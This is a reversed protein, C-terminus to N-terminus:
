ARCGVVQDQEDVSMYNYIEKPFGAYELNRRQEGTLNNWELREGRGERAQKAAHQEVAEKTLEDFEDYYDLDEERGNVIFKVDNLAYGAIGTARKRWQGHVAVNQREWFKKFGSWIEGTGKKSGVLSKNAYFREIVDKVLPHDSHVLHAAVRGIYDIKQYFANDSKAKRPLTDRFEGNNIRYFLQQIADQYGTLNRIANKIKRFFKLIPGIIPTEERQIYRRFDEALLEEVLAPSDKKYHKKGAEYLTDLEEDSLLTQTVAHFAEHYLTGRAAAESLTIAGQQFRGWAWQQEGPIELLGQVLHLREDSNFMPLNKQLWKREKQINAKREKETTARRYLVFSSLGDPNRKIAANWEKLANILEQVSDVSFKRKTGNFTLELENGNMFDIKDKEPIANWAYQTDEDSLGLDKAIEEVEEKSMAQPAESQTDQQVAASQATEKPKSTAVASSDTATKMTQPKSQPKDNLGSAEEATGPNWNGFAGFFDDTDSPAPKNVPAAPTEAKVFKDEKVSWTRSEGNIDVQCRDKADKNIAQMRALEKEVEEDTLTKGTDPDTASWKKGTTININKGNVNHLFTQGEPYKTQQTAIPGEESLNRLTFWTNVTHRTGIPLNTHGIEGIVENYNRNLTGVTIRDNIHNLSVQVKTGTLRDLLMEKWSDGKPVEIKQKNNPEGLPSYKLVVRDKLDMDLYPSEIQLLACIASIAKNRDEKHENPNPYKEFQTLAENLLQYLRTDKMEEANFVPTAFPVAVSKGSADPVLIYCQGTKGAGIANVQKKQGVNIQTPLVKVALTFPAIANGEQYIENLTHREESNVVFGTKVEYVQGRLPKGNKFKLNLGDKADVIADTTGDKQHKTIMADSVKNYLNILADNRHPELKPYPLDGLVNGRDDTMFIVISDRQEIANLENFPKGFIEQAMIRARFIIPKTPKVRDEGVNEAHDFAKVEDSNLFDYIAKSRKYLLPDKSNKVRDTEHYPIMVNHWTNGVGPERGYRRTANRWSGGNTSPTKDQQERFEEMAKEADETSTTAPESPAATPTAPSVNDRGQNSPSKSTADHGTDGLDFSGSEGQQEEPITDKRDQDAQMATMGAAIVGLAQQKREETKAAIQIDDYGQGYLYAAEDESILSAADFNSLEDFSFDDPTEASQGLWQIMQKADAVETPSANNDIFGEMAKQRNDIEKADKVAQADVGDPTNGSSILDFFLDADETSIDGVDMGRKIEKASKGAFKNKAQEEKSANEIKKEEKEKDQNIKEPHAVYDELTAYYNIAQASLKEADALDNWLEILARNYEAPSKSNDQNKARFTEEIHDININRQEQADEMAQERSAASNGFAINAGGFINRIVFDTYAAPNMLTTDVEVYGEPTTDKRSFALDSSTNEESLQEPTKNTKLLFSQPLDERRKTIIDNARGISEKGLFHLYALNDEQDKSLNEGTRQKVYNISDLYSDLKKNVSEANHKIEERIEDDTATRNGDADVFPGKYKNEGVKETTSDVISQIDEASLDKGMEDYIARLDDLKGARLFAQIDRVTQKDDEDKWAKKDNNIAHEEKKQESYTHAVLNRARDFFGEEALVKNVDEINEQYQNYQKNFEKLENIAGGSYEGYRQPNWRSKTKDQNFLKTPAYTGAMGTMGGIVFQEWQDLNGWSDTFGKSIANGLAYLGNTTEKIADPDLQAKWYDNADEREYANGATNQIWQQNMEESGETVFGKTVAKFKGLNKGSIKYGDKLSNSVQKASVMSPKVVKTTTEAAHRAKDFSKMMTKGFQILNGATLLAQNGLLIKNGMARGSEEIEQQGATRRAEIDAKKRNLAAMRQQYRSYGAPSMDQAYEDDIMAEEAQLAEVEPALADELRQMELKNREEVGNRAEIMGEGTASFLASLGAGVMKTTKSVNNVMGLAKSMLGIGGAGTAMSAAAGLTFGANTIVNDAWWNMDGMRQYWKQGQQEESQYNVMNNNLWDDVDGLAQTVKNDWLGSWRGEVAATALGVPLGVLSSVFTTGATGLMKGVGNALTDYWPQNEYRTDGLQADTMPANIFEDDYKSTGWNRMETGEQYPHLSITDELTPGVTGTLYRKREEQAQQLAVQAESPENDVRNLGPLGRLGSIGYKTIDAPM